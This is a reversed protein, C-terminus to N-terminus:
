TLESLQKAGREFLAQKTTGTLRPSLKILQLESLIAIFTAQDKRPKPPSYRLLNRRMARQQRTQPNLKSITSLITAGLEKGM